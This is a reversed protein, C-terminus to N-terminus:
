ADILEHTVIRRGADFDVAREVLEEETLTYSAVEFPLRKERLVARAFLNIATSTNMGVSACFEDFSKKVDPDM